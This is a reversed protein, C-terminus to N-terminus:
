RRVVAQLQLLIKEPRMIEGDYRNLPLVKQEGCVKIIEGVLQGYNLEPVIIRKVKSAFRELLGYPFPWISILKLLGVNIGLKRASRVAAM